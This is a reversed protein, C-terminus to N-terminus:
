YQGNMTVAVPGGEASSIHVVVLIVVPSIKLVEEM